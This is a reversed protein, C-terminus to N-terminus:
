VRTSLSFVIESSNAFNTDDLATLVGAETTEELNITTTNRAGYGSYQNAFSIASFRLGPAAEANASNAITFPLGTIRAAGTSSGKASMTIVGRADFERGIKEYSGSQVTYTLGVAAGGFSVGPTFTGEEYDDLTNADASPVQTAPFNYNGNNWEDFLLGIRAAYDVAGLTPKSLAPM